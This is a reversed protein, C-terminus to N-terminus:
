EFRLTYRLRCLGSDVTAGIRFVGTILCFPLGWLSQWKQALLARKKQGHVVTKKEALRFSFPPENGRQLAACFGENEEVSSFGDSRVQSCRL